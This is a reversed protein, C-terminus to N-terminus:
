ENQIFFVIAALIISIDAVMCYKCISGIVFLQLYIFFSAILAGIILGGKLLHKTIENPKKIHIITIILMISFAIVGFLGTPIGFIEAYESNDVKVCGSAEGCTQAVDTFATMAAAITALILLVGINIYKQKM